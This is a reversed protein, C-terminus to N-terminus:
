RDDIEPLGGSSANQTCVGILDALNAEALAICTDAAGYYMKVTGDEDCILGCPFVVNPVDGTREYIEEPGFIFYPSYGVVQSPDKLDLLLAGIRSWGIHKKVYDLSNKSLSDAWDQDSLIKVIGQVYDERSRCVVGAGTKELTEKMVETSSTVVPKGLAFCHALIGSQSSIEYPLVVLEAASLLTDFTEQPLQGRILYIQEKSPSHAIREFLMNRYEKHETGRTKGAVVLVANPLRRTIEPFIDVVLQFNKSPRFYGIILIVKKDIPLGIREKGNSVPAIERAGHPIQVIRAAQKEPLTQQLAAVQYAEHVIVRDSHTFISELIIRHEMPIEPYVTHLTTVVPLGAMRFQMLLPIVAVGLHKGYLGFEHQIHVVDPTLRVM